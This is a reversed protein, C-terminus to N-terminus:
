CGSVNKRCGIVPKMFKWWCLNRSTGMAAKLTENCGCNEIWIISDILMFDFIWYVSGIYKLSEFMLVVHYRDAVASVQVPKFLKPVVM